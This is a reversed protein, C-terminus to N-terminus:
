TGQLLQAQSPLQRRVHAQDAPHLAVNGQQIPHRRFGSLPHRHEVDGMLLVAGIHRPEERGAGPHAVEVVVEGTFQRLVRGEFGADVGGGIDTGAQQHIAVQRAAMVAPRHGRGEAVAHRARRPLEGRMVSHRCFVDPLQLLQPQQQVVVGIAFTEVVQM